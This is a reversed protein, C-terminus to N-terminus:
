RFLVQSFENGVAIRCGARTELFINVVTRETVMQKARELVETELRAAM